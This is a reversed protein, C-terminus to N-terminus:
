DQSLFIVVLGLSRADISHGLCPVLDLTVSSGLARWQNAAEISWKPLVVGDQEGHILHLRVDPPARRIPEAFREALSIVTHAAQTPQLTAQTSELSMIASQSFGVLVTRDAGLGTLQQWHSITELFLLM